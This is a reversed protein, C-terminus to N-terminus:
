TQLEFFKTLWFEYSDVRTLGAFVIFFSAFDRPRGAGHANAKWSYRKGRVGIM